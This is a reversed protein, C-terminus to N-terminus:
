PANGSDLVWNNCLKEAGQPYVANMWINRIKFVFVQM